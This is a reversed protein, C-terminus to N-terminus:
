GDIPRRRAPGRFSLESLEGSKVRAWVDADHIKLAVIWGEPGPGFGLAERREKSVVFSEVIDGIGMHVHQEGGKGRGGFSMARHAAKEIEEIAIVDDQLDVIKEGNAKTVVAAWGIVLQQEDLAKSIEFRIDATADRAM